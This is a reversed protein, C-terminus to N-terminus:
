NEFIIDHERPILNNATVRNKINQNLILKHVEISARFGGVVNEQVLCSYDEMIIAGPRMLM